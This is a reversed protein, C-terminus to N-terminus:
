AILVAMSLKWISMKGNVETQGMVPTHSFVCVLLHAAAQKKTDAEAAIGMAKAMADFNNTDITTMQTM